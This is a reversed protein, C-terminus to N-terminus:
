LAKYKSLGEAPEAQDQQKTRSAVSEMIEEVLRAGFIAGRNMLLAEKGHEAELALKDKFTLIALDIVQKFVPHKFLHDAGQWAQPDTKVKEELAELTQDKTVLQLCERTLDLPTKKPKKELEAITEHLNGIEENLAIITGIFRESREQEHLVEDKQVYGLRNLLKHIM